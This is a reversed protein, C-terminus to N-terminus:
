TVEPLNLTCGCIGSGDDKLHTGCSDCSSPKRNELYFSSFSYCSIPQYSPEQSNDTAGGTRASYGMLRSCGVTGGCGGGCLDCPHKENNDMAM